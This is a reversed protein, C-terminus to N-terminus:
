SRPRGLLRAMEEELSDMPAVTPPSPPEKPMVPADQQVGPLNAAAPGPKPVATPQDTTVLKPPEAGEIKSASQPVDPRPQPPRALTMSPFRPAVPRLAALPPPATTPTLAPPLPAPAPVAAAAPVAPAPAAPEPAPPVPAPALPVPAPAQPLPVPRFPPTVVTAPARAPPAAPAAAVPPAPPLPAPALPQKLAAEILDLNPEFAAASPPAKAVPEAAPRPPTPVVPKEALRDPVPTPVRPPPLPVAQAPIARLAAPPPPPPPTPVAIAVPMPLPESAPAQPPAVQPAFIPPQPDDREVIPQAQQPRPAAPAGATIVPAPLISAPIPAPGAGDKDRSARSEVRVIQSEILLDNPGGIMILHEVNDRRVLVLQRERDLDQADVLGLRPQRTRLSGPMRLRRGFFARYVLVLFVIIVLVAGAIAAYLLPQNGAFLTQLYLM